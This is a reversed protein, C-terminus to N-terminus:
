SGPEGHGQEIGPSADSTPFPVQMPADDVGYPEVQQLPDEDFGRDASDFCGALLTAGLAAASAVAFGRALRRSM